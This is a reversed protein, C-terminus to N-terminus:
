LAARKRLESSSWSHLRPIYQIDILNEKCIDEGTFTKGEYDSGLFRVDIEIVALINRLDEETDYPIIEKVSNLRALQYYREFTTQCPKNKSIRDIQPNTHLGVILDNCLMSCQELFSIHGPHLLDWAGCTFGNKYIVKNMRKM